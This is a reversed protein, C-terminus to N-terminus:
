EGAIAMFVRADGAPQGSIYVKEVGTGSVLLMGGVPVTLVEGAPNNYKVTVDNGEVRLFFFTAHGNLLDTFDFVVDIDSSKITEARERYEDFTLARAFDRTALAGFDSSGQLRVSHTLQKSTAM